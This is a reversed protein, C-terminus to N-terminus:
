HFLEAEKKGSLGRVQNSIVEFQTKYELVLGTQRLRHMAEMPDDYAM